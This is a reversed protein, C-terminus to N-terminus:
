KQQKAKFEAGALFAGQVALRTTFTVVPNGTDTTCNESFKIAEALDTADTPNIVFIVEGNENSVVRDNASDFQITLPKMLPLGKGSLALYAQTFLKPTAPLGLTKDTSAEIKYLGIYGDLEVENHYVKTGDTMYDGAKIKRESTIHLHYPTGGIKKWANEFEEENLYPDFGSGHEVIGSYQPKTQPNEQPVLIPMIEIYLKAPQTEEKSINTEADNSM